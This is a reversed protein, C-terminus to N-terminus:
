SFFLKWWPRKPEPLNCMWGASMLFAASFGCTVCKGRKIRHSPPTTRLLEPPKCMWGFSELFSVRFGCKLCRGRKIRHNPLTTRVIEAAKKKANEAAVAARFSARLHWERGLPSEPFRQAIWDVYSEHTERLESRHEQGIEQLTQLDMEGSNIEDLTYMSRLAAVMEANLTALRECIKAYEAAREASEVAERQRILERTNREQAEELMDLKDGLEDAAQRNAAANFRQDSLHKAFLLILPNM